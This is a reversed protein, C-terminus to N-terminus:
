AGFTNTWASKIADASNANGTSAASAQVLYGYFDMNIGATYNALDISNVTVKQGTLINYTTAGSSNGANGNKYYYIQGGNKGTVGTMITWVNTDISWTFDGSKPLTTVVEIYLYAPINSRGTLKVYPDKYLTTNPTLNYTNGDGTATATVEGSGKVYSGDSSATVKSEVLNFALSKGLGEGATFTNKLVGTSNTLWAMTGVVCMTCLMLVAVISLFIKKKSM